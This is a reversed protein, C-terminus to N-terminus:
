VTNLLTGIISIKSHQFRSSHPLITYSMSSMKSSEYRHSVPVEQKYDGSDGGLLSKYLWLYM